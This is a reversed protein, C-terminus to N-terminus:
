QVEKKIDESIEMESQDLKILIWNRFNEDPFHEEDIPISTSTTKTSM